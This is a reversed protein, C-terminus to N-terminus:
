KSFLLGYHYLGASFEELFGFNSAQAFKKIEEKDPRDALPPGFPTSVKEWDIVLLKGGARLLRFSEKIILDDKTSQFLTNILLAVDLSEAPIKTAGVIELNSWITKVNNLGGQKARSAVSELASKLVDVAYVLGNKGVIKAAPLSFYGLNGCGLDALNMNETLGVKAFVDINILENGGHIPSVM